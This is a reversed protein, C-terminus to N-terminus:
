GCNSDEFGDCKVEGASRPLSQEGPESFRKVLRLCNGAVPDSRYYVEDVLSKILFVGYGGEHPESLSPPPVSDFDFGRGRDGIEIELCSGHSRFVFEVRGDTRGGYAHEIINTAAEQVALQVDYVAKESGSLEPTRQCFEFVCVSVVPLYQLKSPITLEVRGEDTM